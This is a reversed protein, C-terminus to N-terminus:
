KVVKKKFDIRIFDGYSLDAGNLEEITLYTVFVDPDGGPPVADDNAIMITYEYDNMYYIIRLISDYVEDDISWVEDTNEKLEIIIVFKCMTNLSESWSRAKFRASHNIEALIDRIVELRKQSENGFVEFLEIWKM